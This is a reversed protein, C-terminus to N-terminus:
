STAPSAAGAQRTASRCRTTARRIPRSAKRRMEDSLGFVANTAGRVKFAGAKQFNECKFFLEAGTLENMFRSTLVPTRHIYPAIREHAVLVDDWSPLDLTMDKMEEGRM